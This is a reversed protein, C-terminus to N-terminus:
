QEPAASMASLLPSDKSLGAALAKKRAQMFDLATEEARPTGRALSAAKRAEKLEGIAMKLEDTMLIQEFPKAFYAVIGDKARRVMEPFGGEPIKIEGTEPDRDVSFNVFNIVVSLFIANLCFLFVRPDYDDRFALEPLVEQPIATARVSARPRLAAVRPVKANQNGGRLIVACAGHASEVPSRRMQSAGGQSVAVVKLGTSRRGQAISSVHRVVWTNIMAMDDCVPARTRKSERRLRGTIFRALTTLECCKNRTRLIIGRPVLVFM